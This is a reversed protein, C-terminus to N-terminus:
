VYMDRASEFDSRGGAIGYRERILQQQWQQVMQPCYTLHYAHWAAVQIPTHEADPFVTAENKAVERVTEILHECTEKLPEQPLISTAM